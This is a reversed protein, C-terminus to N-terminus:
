SKGGTSEVPLKATSGRAGKGNSEKSVHDLILVAGGIDKVPQASAKIWSTVDTTTNESLNDLALHDGFSDFVALAPRIKEIMRKWIEVAEKTLGPAQAYKFHKPLLEAEAGRHKLLETVNPAGFSPSPQGSLWARVSCANLSGHGSSSSGDGAPTTAGTSGGTTTITGTRTGAM